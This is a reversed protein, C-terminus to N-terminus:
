QVHHRLLALHCHGESNRRLALWGLRAALPQSQGLLTAM